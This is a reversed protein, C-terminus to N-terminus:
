ELALNVIGCERYGNEFVQSWAPCGCIPSPVTVCTHHTTSSVSPLVLCSKPSGPTHPLINFYIKSIYLAFPQVPNFESLIRDLPSNKHICYYDKYYISYVISYLITYYLITYYLITYYLITCYTYYLMIHNVFKICYLVICYLLVYYSMYRLIITYCSIIKILLNTQKLTTTAETPELYSGSNRFPNLLLLSADTSEIWGYCRRAELSL